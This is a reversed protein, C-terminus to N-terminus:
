KITFTALPSWGYIHGLWRARGKHIEHVMDYTPNRYEEAIDHGTLRALSRANFM